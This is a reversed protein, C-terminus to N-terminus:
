ERTGLVTEGSKAFRAGAVAIAFYSRYPISVPATPFRIEAAATVEDVHRESRPSFGVAFSRRCSTAEVGIVGPLGSRVLGALPVAKGVTMHDARLAPHWSIPEGLEVSAQQLLGAIAIRDARTHCVRRECLLGLMRDSAESGASNRPRSPAIRVSRRHEDDFATM